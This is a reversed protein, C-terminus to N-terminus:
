ANMAVKQLRGGLMELRGGDELDVYANVIMRPCLFLIEHMSDDDVSARSRWFYDNAIPTRDAKCHGTVWTM